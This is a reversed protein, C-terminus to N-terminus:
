IKFQGLTAKMNAAMQALEHVSSSIAASGSAAQRSVVAINEMNREIENNAAGQEETASAIQDTKSRIAAVGDTIAVLSESAAESRSVAEGAQKRGQEMRQVAERAGSQLREIMDQIEQTSSQTRSALTRVEDAVVAFGRGQEGARAAEIAANLALLNTQEAIGRIVDLVTGIDETGQRLQSIVESAGHIDQALREIQEMTDGVVQRGSSSEQDAAHASEAAQTVNRAVEDVVSSMERVAEVVQNIDTQQSTVGKETESALQTVEGAHRDLEMANNSFGSITGHLREIFINFNKCLVGIEDRGDDPLRLTLDGNGDAMDRLADSVAIVPKVIARSVFLSVVAAFVSILLVSLGASNMAEQEALSVEDRSVAIYIHGLKEGDAKISEAMRFENANDRDVFPATLSVPAGTPISTSKVGRGKEFWAFPQGNGGYIVASNVRDSKKLNALIDRVTAKDDFALAGAASGGVVMELTHAFRELEEEIHSIQTVVSVVSVVIVAAMSTLTVGLLVKWKLSLSKM